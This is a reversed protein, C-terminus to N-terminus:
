CFTIGNVTLLKELYRIKNELLTIQHHRDDTAIQLNEIRNDSRNHNKHHVVEWPHLNRGLHKAMVLRHELIYGDQRAMSFFFDDPYIRVMIYGKGGKRRGGKWCWHKEGIPFGLKLYLSVKKVACSRCRANQAGGNRYSVWREKGCDVCASWIYQARGKFGVENGHKITGLEM